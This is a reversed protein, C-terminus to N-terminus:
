RAALCVNESTETILIDRSFASLIMSKIGVRVKQM